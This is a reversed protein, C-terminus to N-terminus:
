SIRIKVSYSKIPLVLLDDFDVANSNKLKEEYKEYKMFLKIMTMVSVSKM